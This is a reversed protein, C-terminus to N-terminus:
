QRPMFRYFTYALHVITAAGSIGYKLLSLSKDAVIDSQVARSSNAIEIRLHGTTRKVGGTESLLPQSRAPEITQLIAQMISAQAETLMAPAQRRDQLKM